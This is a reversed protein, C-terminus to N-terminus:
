YAPQLGHTRVYGRAHRLDVAMQAKLADLSDFKLEDRLRHLLLVNIHRGYIDRDFDFIHVELRKLRGGVTPRIGISAVGPLPEPALGEVAVVYVGHVPTSHHDLRINATAYGLGRGLKDGHAVRGCISYPRGLLRRALAMDGRDLAARIRTSSVRAGEVEFTGTAAVEFGHHEGARRLMDFDGERGSGFRFDDGVVLYRIGLARVLLDEIFDRASMSALADDFRLCLLRQMELRELAILKDRLGTLRAPRESGAFYEHPLPEFSIVTAPLDLQAARELLQHMIRQHGLHVGDFNGVTAACGHHRPRLNHQGRILEM